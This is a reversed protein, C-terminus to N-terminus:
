AAFFTLGRPLCYGCIGLPYNGAINMCWSARQLSQPHLSSMRSFPLMVAAARKGDGTRLLLRVVSLGDVWGVARPGKQLCVTRSQQPYNNAVFDALARGMEGVDRRRDWDNKFFVLVDASRAHMGPFLRAAEGVVESQFSALQPHSFSAGEPKGPLLESVEVGLAASPIRGDPGDAMVLTGPPFLDSHKRASEIIRRECEQKIANDTM